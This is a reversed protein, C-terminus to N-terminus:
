QAHYTRTKQNNGDSKEATANASDAFARLTYWGSAPATLPVTIVTSAGAALPGIMASANGTAGAPQAAPSHMWVDMRGGNGAIDGKNIVTIQATFAAGAPVSAPSFTISAIEFDPKMWSPTGGPAAASLTYTKTKQNNGESKEVAAGQADVFARFTYTGASAPATLGDIRITKTEGAALAGANVFADSADGAGAAVPRNIWLSLRGANAAAGDNFITVLAAFTGGATLPDPDFAIATVKFDPKEIPAGGSPPVGSVAQIVASAIDDEGPASNGPTSDPDAASSSAVEATNTVANTTLVNVDIWLCATQGAAIDGITWIGTLHSYAGMSATSGTFQLEAPLVDSVTVGTAAQPGANAVCIKFTKDSTTQERNFWGEITFDTTDLHLSASDPIVIKDDIGDFIYGPGARGAPTWSAGAPTGHNGFVTSDLVAGAAEDLHQVMVFSADWVTAPSAASIAAANGYHLQFGADVGAQLSPLTVWAVLRGSARDFAEVEFPLVAGTDTTFVLDTGAASEVHATLAANTLSVLVPFSALTGAVQAGQVTLGMRYGYGPLSGPLEPGATVFASPATMQRWTTLLWDTSRATRSLRVEDMVGAYFYSTGLYAGLMLSATSHDITGSAVKTAVVVGDVLIEMTHPGWANPGRTLRGAVHHWGRDIQVGSKLNGPGWVDFSPENYELRLWYDGDVFQEGKSIPITWKVPSAPANVVEKTLSLDAGTAPATVDVVADDTDSVPTGAYDAVVSGINTVDATVGAATKTFVVTAGAPLVAETGVAGLKDDTVVVNTLAVNGTNRVTYRYVVNDGSNITLVAGDAAVGAVKVISIAPAPVPPPTVHVVADDTDSVPTVGYQATVTVVNTVHATVSAVVSTFAVTGGASLSASAGVAGLKDDTAAIGTLAVNGTNRVTYIYTVPSGSVVTLVTGDAAGSAIKVVEIAPAPAPPSTVDVIADDTDTVDAPHCPLDAGSADVPHAVVTGINTVASVVSAVTATLVLSSGPALPGPVVGVAGLKDDTVVINGLYTNGTNQVAYSYVVADGPDVVLAAGDAAGGARKVLRVGPVPATLGQVAVSAIDDEGPVHNGPTSDPDLTPTSAVEATNTLMGCAAANAAIRLTATEGVGLDGISWTGPPQAFVGRSTLANVLTFSPSLPDAVTLDEAPDPGDNRVTIEFLYDAAVTKRAYWAEITFDTSNLQVSASDPITIKDDIGDFAYAGDTLGHVTPAAGSVAGDNGNATSDSIPGASEELHQVMMFGADWVDGASFAPVPPAAHGYNVYFGTAAGATVEPLKVWAVLRGSAKTYLEIEHPLVTGDALTFSLDSGDATLVKSVLFEDNLSVLVPFNTLNGTVLAGNVALGRRYAYGPLTGPEEAGLAVFTSPSKQQAVTAKLWADSRAGRSLRVEDMLGAYWYSNGMYAGLVLPATSPDTTGTAVKTAVVVGDVLIEMTHPGWTNTGRTFRGAVHHWNMDISVGSQLNGPGWVDFSPQDYELRMWYDGDVFQQGKSLPITWKSQYETIAKRTKTLSVDARKRIIGLDWSLDSEGWALSTPETLGTTEDADSDTPDSTGDPGKVTPKYQDPLTSYDFAVQYSGAVLGEFLYHGTGDTVNTAIPLGGLLLTVRVGPVGPEGGDQTGSDNNDYWVYDGLSAPQWMGADWTPDDEGSTLTTVATRGTAPNADSDKADDSGQDKPSIVFGAPATFGVSYDGPVLEAFKYFGTADTNTTAVASGAGNYLTVLVGPVGAEGGDQIGNTNADFWVFDGLSAPLYIGLDWTLDDEGPDLTTVIARGSVPDADSDAADGGQDQPSIRYGAPPTFGVSYSGPILDEFKYLGTAGTNTTAIAAGAANYLTVLVGPVGVEGADQVGDADMDHWVRDGISARNLFIGADWTPDNEGPDLTTVVTRGTALNPDSDVTDDAGTDRPSFLHDAPLTFGVSYDGPVLGAFGYLGNVDTNTTAVAAGSVDYLTVLVGPVGSEGPDQIGNMNIDNWVYNGISAPRWLGADWTPDYEGVSLTTPITRGTSPNADSDRGDNGGQDQPSFVYGAPPTFGVSYDGPILDAFKYFGVADTNTTAVAAGVADYLTVLVGNIPTEGGDQVGDRDADYWVYDGISALRWLGLDWTMDYEGAELVTPVTRLTVLDADSDAADNAGQDQPSVVYGAPPTFGVSYTGPLLSAFIYRGNAATTNTALPAGAADYLVVRVGPVGAEGADQVGDRDLDYWVLDGIAAYVEVIAPDEDRVPPAGPIELGTSPDAPHGVVDAINTVGLTLAGSTKTLTASAGPALPGPIQGIYGLKDDNVDLRVLPLEGTNTVLFTYTVPTGPQIWHVGGDPATGATKVINVSTPPLFLGLDWTPDNEEDDLWTVITAGTTADGDSDAADDGGADKPSVGYVPPIEFVAYYNGRDLNPFNYYGPEGGFNDATVTYGVLHDENTNVVGDSFGGPGSDEYFRVRVGNIGTEAAEQVGNSNADFWVRDGYVANTDPMIAIGVKIPESPLLRTFTDMRTGYYGFSNWAIRGDTPTGVPSRMPWTLEYSAGPQIVISDFVFKLSRVEIITAPLNTSWNAPDSGPPGSPDFDLRTPDQERSYYVTAGPPAIVPGALSAKWETDRQSLDIVGTDDLTPLIDLVVANTIPVNGTNSVILRYDARGGPVTLGNTPFKSWESDLEGKVWKISDMSARARVTVTTRRYHVTETTSGDGDLDRVDTASTTGSADLDTNGWQALTLDNNIGGYLTGAPIRAQFRMEIFSNIPLDYASAGTWKWRLLTRGTGNYNAITEFVPVPAAAPKSVITWSGPEYALKADLLDALVPNVLPQAAESRNTLRITFTTMDGDNVTTPSASKALEAVPRQTKVPITALSTKSTPGSFDSYALAGINSIINGAVVPQGNRDNTLISSAFQLSGVSYGVPLTGFDWKIATVSEGAGLGLSAAPITVSATGPYPNGPAALWSSGGTKMYFVEISDQLGPPTGSPVGVNISTVEVQAPVADTLVVDYMPVNGSNQLTFTWSKATPKGEYVYSANVGKSFSSGGQPAVITDGRRATLNTPSGGLPTVSVSLDNTVKAGVPYATSPYMMTVTRSFSSGAALSPTTWTVTHTGPDYVGGGSAAVFVAGTPLQDLLTVNTVNLAGVSSGNNAAVTYTVNQDLPVSGTLSKSATTRNTAMSVITVPPSTDEPFNSADMTASNTAITGSPTTGPTFRVNVEIEGTSGAPLPDIFDVRLERTAPNHAFSAVHVTGVLSQFEVGPPLVDILYTGFFDTTTSAARYQLKYTFTQGSPVTTLGNKIVKTVELGAPAAMAFGMVAVAVLLVKFWNMKM